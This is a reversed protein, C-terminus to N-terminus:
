KEQVPKEQAAKGQGPLPYKIMTRIFSIRRDGPLIKEARDLLNQTEDTNRHQLVHIAALRILADADQPNKEIRTLFEMEQLMLQRREAIVSQPVPQAPVDPRGMLLYLGFAAIACLFALAYFAKPSRLPKLTWSLVLVCLGACAAILYM